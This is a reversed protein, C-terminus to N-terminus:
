QEDPLEGQLEGQSAPDGCSRGSFGLKLRSSGSRGRHDPSRSLGSRGYRGCDVFIRRSRLRQRCRELGTSSGVLM